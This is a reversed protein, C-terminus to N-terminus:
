KNPALAEQPLFSINLEVRNIMANLLAIKSYNKLDKYHVDTKILEKNDLYRNLTTGQLLPTKPTHWKQSKTHLLAINAITTDRLYGNQTIIFEDAQQKQLPTLFDRNFYKFKYNINPIEVLLLTSIRKQKYIYYDKSVLGNIDYVIKARYLNDTPHSSLTEKLNLKPEIKFFEKYASNVRAQHYELNYIKGNEIKITEFLTPEIIQKTKILIPKRNLIKAQMESKTNAEYPAVQTDCRNNNRRFFKTNKHCNLSVTRCM